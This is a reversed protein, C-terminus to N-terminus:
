RINIEVLQKQINILVNNESIDVKNKLNKLINKRYDDIIKDDYIKPPDDDEILYQKSNNLIETDSDQDIYNIKYKEFEFIEPTFNFKVKPM